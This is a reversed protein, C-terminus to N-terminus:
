PQPPTGTLAWGTQHGSPNYYFNANNPGEPRTATSGGNNIFGASSSTSNPGLADGLCYVFGEFDGIIYDAAHVQSLTCVACVVLLTVALRIPFRNMSM